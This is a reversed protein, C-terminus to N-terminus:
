LGDMDDAEDRRDSEESRHTQVPAAPRLRVNEYYPNNNTPSRVGGYLKEMMKSARKMVGSHVDIADIGLDRAFARMAQQLAASMLRQGPAREVGEHIFIAVADDGHQMELLAERHGNPLTFRGNRILRAAGEAAWNLVGPLEERVRELFEGDVEVREITRDFNIALLRRGFAATADNTRPLDNCAFVHWARPRFEFERGRPHRAAVTECSAIQKVYNSVLLKDGALETCVNLTVGLLRARSYESSWSDPPVSAKSGGSLM